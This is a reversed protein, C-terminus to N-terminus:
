LELVVLVVQPVVAVVVVAQIQLEPPVMLQAVEAAAVQVELVKLLHIIVLLHEEAEVAVTGFQTVLYQRHDDQEEMVLYCRHVVQMQVQLAVAVVVPQGHILKLITEAM